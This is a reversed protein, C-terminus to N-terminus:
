MTNPKLRMLFLSCIASVRSRPVLEAPANNQFKNSFLKWIQKESCPLNATAAAAFPLLCICGEGITMTNTDFFVVSEKSTQTRSQETWHETRNKNMIYTSCARSRRMNTVRAYMFVCVCLYVCHSRNGRAADRESECQWGRVSQFSCGKYKNNYM